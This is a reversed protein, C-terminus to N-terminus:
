KSAEEPVIEYHMSKQEPLVTFRLRNEKWVAPVESTRLGTADLAYVRRPGATKLSVEANMKTGLVPPRGWTGRENMTSNRERNWIVGSNEFRGAFTFLISGSDALPRGDRSVLVAAGFNGPFPNSKLTFDGVDMTRGGFHGTLIVCEPAVATFYALKGKDETWARMPQVEPIPSDVKLSLHSDRCGDPILAQRTTLLNRRLGSDAWARDFRNGFFRWPKEPLSLEAVKGAPKFMGRRFILAAAPFFGIKGPHNTQDFMHSIGLSSGPRKFTGHIFLQLMDWDQRLAVGVLLPMMEVAYDSPYPYDHESVSLPKGKIRYRSFQELPCWGGNAVRPSQPENMIKWKGPKFEWSGGTFEPHGWYAHVDVYDMKRERHVGSIGGWDIQTDIVGCRVKLDRRLFQLLEEAYATDLEVLFDLKDAGMAGPATAPLPINGKALTAAPTEMGPYLRIGAIEIGAAHGIGFSIRGHGPDGNKAEFAFRYKKWEPTLRFSKDLGSNHWPERDQSTVARVPSGQDGRAEFELTYTKGNEFTLGPLQLQISWDHEGRKSVVASVLGSTNKKLEVGAPNEVLWSKHHLLSVSSDIKAINWAKRLAEDSAYKRRLYANWLGTLEKKYPPPLTDIWATNEFLLSSENNLEVSLVAPDEALTTGTYPNRHALLQEAWRKQSDIWARNFRDVRKGAKKVGDPLADGARLVRNVKLGMVTYIGQKRLQAFFYDLIDLHKASFQESGPKGLDILTDRERDGDLNHFRVVNVGAKALRFATKEADEHSMPFLADGGIGIGILRVRRHTKSEVFHGDRVVLRGNVGAPKANLFSVDTAVGSRTDDWKMPFPQYGEPVASEPVSFASAACFMMMWFLRKRM